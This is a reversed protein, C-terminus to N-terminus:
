LDEPTRERGIVELLLVPHAKGDQQAACVLSPSKKKKSERLFFRHQSFTHFLWSYGEMYSGEVDAFYIWCKHTSSSFSSM